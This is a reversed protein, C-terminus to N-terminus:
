CFEDYLKIIFGIQNETLYVDPDRSLKFSKFKQAMDEVFELQYEDLGQDVGCLADVLGKLERLTQDPM